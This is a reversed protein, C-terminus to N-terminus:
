NIIALSNTTDIQWSKSISSKNTQSGKWLVPAKTIQELLGEMSHALLKVQTIASKGRRNLTGKKKKKLSRQQQQQQQQQKNKSHKINNTWNWGLTPIQVSSSPLESVWPSIPSTGLFAQMSVEKRSKGMMCERQAEAGYPLSTKSWCIEFHPGLFLM